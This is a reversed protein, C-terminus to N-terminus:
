SLMDAEAIGELVYEACVVALGNGLAKYKASDSAGEIDTWGDGYDQLRECETPTLRRVTMRQSILDTADKYDRAKVTSFTGDDAYEGFAVMRAVVNMGRDACPSSDHRATLTRAIDGDFGWVTKVGADGLRGGTGIISPVNNGGTGCRSTLTPCLEDYESPTRLRAEGLDYCKTGDARGAGECLMPLAGHCGARLTEVPGHCPYGRNTLGVAGVVALNDSDDRFHLNAKAKLCNAICPFGVADDARGPADAAPGEWAEGGAELHRRLGQREFLVEPASGGGFDAVLYIRRRRQPVGWYQADLTRYAISWGDGMVCGAGPWKGKPPGPVSVPEVVKALEELVVRFDEGANSSFAGPVNEWIAWRPQATGTANKTAERMEKIIRVAEMFLGSRTTEEHGLEGHQLGKRKGAVSLDQCPSGFTIIDVPEVAGGDIKTIDGLHTMDPFRVTTVKIPFPEIESAWVPTIGNRMGALPFGGIGDFLSGLKM